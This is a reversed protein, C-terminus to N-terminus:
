PTLILVIPALERRLLLGISNVSHCDPGILFRVIEELFMWSDSCQRLVSMGTGVKRLHSWAALLILVDHHVGASWQMSRLHFLVEGAMDDAPSISQM